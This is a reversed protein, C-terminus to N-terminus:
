ILEKLLEFSDIQRRIKYVPIKKREAVTRIEYQHDIPANLGIIVEEFYENGLQFKRDNDSPLDEFFKTFRVEKDYGWDWAKSMQEAM